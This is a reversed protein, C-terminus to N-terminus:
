TLVLNPQIGLSSPNVPNAYEIEQWDVVVVVRDVLVVRDKKIIDVQPHTDPHNRKQLANFEALQETDFLNYVTTRLELRRMFQEMFLQGKFIPVNSWTWAKMEEALAEEEDAGQQEEEQHAVKIDAVTGVPARGAARGPKVPPSM